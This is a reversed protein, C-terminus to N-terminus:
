WLGGATQQKVQDWIPDSNRHRWWCLGEPTLMDEVCTINLIPDECLLWLPIGTHAALQDRTWLGPGHNMTRSDFGSIATGSVADRMSGFAENGIADFIAGVIGGVTGGAIHGILSHRPIQGKPTKPPIEVARWKAVHDELSWKGDDILRLCDREFEERTPTWKKPPTNTKPSLRAAVALLLVLALWSVVFFRVFEMFETM